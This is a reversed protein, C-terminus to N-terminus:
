VRFLTGQSLWKKLWKLPCLQLGCGLYLPQVSTVETHCFANCSAHTSQGKAMRSYYFSISKLSSTVDHATERNCIPPRTLEGSYFMHVCLFVVDVLLIMSNLAVSM